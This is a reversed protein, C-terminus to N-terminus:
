HRPDANPAIRHHCTEAVARAVSRSAVRAFRVAASIMCAMATAAGHGIAGRGDLDAM